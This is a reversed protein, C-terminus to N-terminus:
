STEDILIQDSNRIGHPAHLFVPPNLLQLQAVGTGKGEEGRGRGEKKRQRRGEDGRRRERARGKGKIWSHPTPLATLEELPDMASGTCKKAMKVESFADSSLLSYITWHGDVWAFNKSPQPCTGNVSWISAM